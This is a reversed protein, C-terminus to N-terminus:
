WNVDTLKESVKWLRKAITEDYSIRSSEAEKRKVFYKGSVREVEPSSALYVTTEAGKGSNIMFPWLLNFAIRFLISGSNGFNTAVLGPHLCNATVGTGELRKALEYTFYINSLKSQSYVGMGSYGNNNQLDNFDLSARIHAASSVNIIRSPASAKLVDQLLYTLLFYALHNVAFTTEIGDETETRRGMILGANNVLVHLYRYKGSFNEAFKRISSQSSLDAIFLDVSQNGSRSKIDNQAAEGRKQDRCVMIVTAGMKALELATVKGIGSNAGTIMCTKGRMTDFRKDM